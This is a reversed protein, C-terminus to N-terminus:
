PGDNSPGGRGKQESPPFLSALLGPSRRGGALSETEGWLLKPSGLVLHLRRKASHADAVGCARSGRRAVGRRGLLRGPRDGARMEGERGGWIGSGEWGHRQFGKM